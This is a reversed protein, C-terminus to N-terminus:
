ALFRQNVAMRLPATPHVFSMYISFLSFATTGLCVYTEDLSRNALAANHGSEDTVMSILFLGATYVARGVAEILGGIALGVFAATSILKKGFLSAAAHPDAPTSPPNYVSLNSQELVEDTWRAVDLYGQFSFSPQVISVPLNM